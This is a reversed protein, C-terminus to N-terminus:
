LQPIATKAITAAADVADAAIVHDAGRTISLGGPPM